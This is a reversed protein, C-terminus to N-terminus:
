LSVIVDESLAFFVQWNIKEYELLVTIDAFAPLEGTLENKESIKNILQSVDFTFENSYYRDGGIGGNDNRLYVGYGFVADQSNYEQESFIPRASLAVSKENNWFLTPKNTLYIGGNAVATTSSHKIKNESASYVTIRYEQGNEVFPCVFIGSKRLQELEDGSFDVMTSMEGLTIPNELYVYLWLSVADEPINTIDLSIGESTGKATVTFDSVSNENIKTDECTCLIVGFILLIGLTIHKIKM